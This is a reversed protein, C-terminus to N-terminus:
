PISEEDLTAGKRLLVFALMAYEKDTLRIRAGAVEVVKADGLSAM